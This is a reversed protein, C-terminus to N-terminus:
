AVEALEADATPISPAEGEGGEAMALMEAVADPGGAAGVGQGVSKMTDAGQQQQDMQSQQQAQEAKTKRLQKVEAEDRLLGAPINLSKHSEMVAADFDVRDLVGPEVQALAIVGQVFREIAQVTDTKQARALPGLYEIDMSAASQQVVEPQDPLQGARLLINFTRQILPDFLDNQLRGVTPGLLRHMRETRELVETATMEPSEKLDLKDLFFVEKIQDRLRMMTDNTSQFNAKTEWQQIEDLSRVVTLGAPDLDIDGLLGRETVIIPPDAAKERSRLDIEVLQNLTLVDALAIMAPSNGWSSESTKRWRTVFGPMEYYGGEDGLQTADKHRIYKSGWPREKPALPLTTDANQKERRPYIAFIVEERQDISAPNAALTKIDDPTNEPGFKDLIQTATWMLRRFMKLVRDKHDMEFFIEKVPIATFDIGQWTEESIAEEVLISTGFSTLDIYAENIELDFDSEQLALHIRNSCEELWEQAAQDEQIESNRYALNFWKTKPNTMGGHVSAALNQVAMIATTEYVERRRWDVEHETQQDRFMEGRYPACFREIIDWTTEITRRQARLTDARIRIDEPTM